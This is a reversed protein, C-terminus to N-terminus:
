YIFEVTVDVENAMKIGMYDPVGISPYKLTDVTFKAVVKGSGVTAMGKVPATENKITLDGEFPVARGPAYRLPKLKFTAYKYKQTELYKNKMHEDRLPLATDFTDADVKFEGSIM